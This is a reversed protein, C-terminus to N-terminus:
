FDSKPKPPRQLVLDGKKLGSTVECNLGDSLGTAIEVKKAPAKPSGGPIEVFAKKGGDEFTIVREPILLIDKKEKIVVDANASYGARLVAEQGPDLEIEVEFLKANDKETAQPAIRTLKGTVTKDPLAGIRLRTPLGVQLKGVDIEDVTGKFILDKMEAITALDTGAQYSTLPVVPDGPNALRELLVGAAPARVVSEMGVGGGQIRGKQLLELNDKAQALQIRAQEFVQQKIDHDGKSLIGSLSLQEARNMEREAQDFASQAMELRREAEVREAPTPDPVIDFLPDGAHIADGVQVHVTKVIGSIKSKVHYKLRPEIKGVAVAKDTISGTTVEVKKIGDDAGDKSQLWAYAGVVVFALLALGILIKVIKGM